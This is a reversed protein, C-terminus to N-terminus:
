PVGVCSTDFLYSSNLESLNEFLKALSKVIRGTRWTWRPWLVSYYRNETETYKKVINNNNRVSISYSFRLVRRARPFLYFYQGSPWFSPKFFVKELQFFLYIYIYIYIYIYTDYILVSCKLGCKEECYIKKDM